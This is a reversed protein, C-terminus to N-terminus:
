RPIETSSVIRRVVEQATIHRMKAERKLVLRHEIVPVAMKIVDDPLVYDRENYLAWAQAARYLCLTTRPSGGLAIDPDERTQRVIAVIYANISPDVHVRTVLEQMVALADANSVAQLASLPSQEKFRDLLASEEEATPYGLSIRMFFRDLQAEPLPYTGLYEIPNQTAFVIFPQPVPYTKGDVTVQNEEMAELLSSQTKPSTRNIEDALIIQAMIAGQRYEFEGTKQNYMSFGMIDSPLIDPTFQIRRFSCDFSKAIASVLSTKGVGPMDEILVHGKCIFSCVALEIAERKGIIVREVNSVINKLSRSALKRIEAPDRQM